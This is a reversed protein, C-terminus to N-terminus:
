QENTMYLATFIDNWEKARELTKIKKTIVEKKGEIKLLAAMLEVVHKDKFEILKNSFAYLLSIASSQKDQYKLYRLLRGKQPKLAKRVQLEQHKTLYHM